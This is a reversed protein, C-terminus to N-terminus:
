KQAQYWTLAEKQMATTDSALDSWKQFDKNNPHTTKVTYGTAKDGWTEVKPAPKKPCATFSAFLFILSLKLKNM